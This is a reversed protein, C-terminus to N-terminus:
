RRAPRGATAASPPPSPTPPRTSTPTRSVLAPANGGLEATVRLARGAVLRLLHAGVRASGTFTLKRLRPDALLPDTAGPDSSVVVALCGDPLGSEALAEALALASLPAADSARLVATCGAALAPGVGRAPIALPFNWPAVILCPGVPRRRVVIECGGDPHEDVRGSIRLAEAASWELYDAAFAVEDRAEALPKGSELALALAVREADDLLRDAARRLM